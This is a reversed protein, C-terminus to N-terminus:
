VYINQKNWEGYYTKRTTSPSTSTLLRCRASNTNMRNSAPFCQMRVMTITLFSDKGGFDAKSPFDEWLWVETLMSYRPDSLLWSRMLREFHTGKEKQTFSERRFKLLIDDFKM